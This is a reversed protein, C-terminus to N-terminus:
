HSFPAIKLHPIRKFHKINKTMLSLKKMQATVGILLDFDSLKEGKVELHAKIEGYVRMIEEDLEIVSIKLTSLFDDIITLARDKNASKWAGYMLEGYTIISIGIGKQIAEEPIKQRGRIYDVVTDTDLLYNM